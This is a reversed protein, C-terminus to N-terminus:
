ESRLSSDAKEKLLGQVVEALKKSNLRLAAPGVNLQHMWLQPRPPAEEWRAGRGFLLYADWAPDNGEPLGLLRRYPNGVRWEPDLYHKGREDAIRKSAASRAASALAEPSMRNLVPLWVVYVRLEPSSITDLVERKM